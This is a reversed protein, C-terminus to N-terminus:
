ALTQLIPWVNGDRRFTLTFRPVSRAIAAARELLTDGRAPDHNVYPACRVLLAIAEALSLERVSEATGHELAVIARLARPTQSTPAFDGTFPLPLLMGDLVANLDDSLVPLGAAAGLGAITSKGAGSRGAFLYGDVAASHILLGGRDLLRMAIWPRLVNEAVGWFSEVGTEPTWLGARMGDVRAMLQMGAATFGGGNWDLDLAYEWGRTDISLFDDSAVRFVRLTCAPEGDVREYRARLSEHQEASLGEIAFREGGLAIVIRQAGWPEGSIRAPFLEPERLFRIM